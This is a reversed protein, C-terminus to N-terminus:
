TQLDWSRRWHAEDFITISMDKIVTGDTYKAVGKYVALTKPEFNPLELIYIDQDGKGGKRYSSFYARLVMMQLSTFYMMVQLTSQTDLTKLRAGHDTMKYKLNSFMLDEWPITVKRLFTFHKEMQTYIRPKKMMNQIQHVSRINQVNAWEGNPLKKM